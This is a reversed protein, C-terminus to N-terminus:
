AAIRQGAKRELGEAVRDTFTKFGLPRIRLNPTSPCNVRWSVGPQVEEFILSDVPETLIGGHARLKQGRNLNHITFPADDPLAIKMFGHAVLISMPRLEFAAKPANVVLTHSDPDTDPTGRYFAGLIEIPEDQPPIAYFDAQAILLPSELPSTDFSRM